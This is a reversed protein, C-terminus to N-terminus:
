SGDLVCGAGESMGGREWLESCTEPARSYKAAANLLGQLTWRDRALESRDDSCGLGALEKKRVTKRWDSRDRGSRAVRSSGIRQVSGVESKGKGELFLYFDWSLLM